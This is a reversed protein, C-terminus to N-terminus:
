FKVQLQVLIEDNPIEAGKEARYRYNVQLRTADNFFYNAGLTIINQENADSNLDADFMEFKVVPELNFNTM